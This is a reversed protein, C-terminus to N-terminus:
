SGAVRLCASSTSRRRTPGRAVRAAQGAAFAEQAARRLSVGFWAGVLGLGTVTSPVAIGLAQLLLVALVGTALSGAVAVGLHKLVIRDPTNM